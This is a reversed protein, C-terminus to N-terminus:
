TKGNNEKIAEEVVRVLMQEAEDLSKEIVCGSAAKHGGGGFKKAIENVDIDKKSRFSVKVGPKNDMERLFAVVEAGEIMRVFVIFDECCDATLKNRYLMENTVKFWVFKADDTRKLNALVEALLKFTNFSKTEYVYEYIQKPDIDYLLLDAAISHTRATTNAYRFSGTDTMIAVYICLASADDVARNSSKFLDYVMEGASSCNPDVWNIDGFQSNSVHHDINIIYKGDLMKKVDGIRELTPSDLIIAVDFDVANNGIDKFLEMSEVGPMFMINKPVCDANIIRVEKGLIKLLNAMALQSGIADGEPNVHGSILFRKHKKIVDLIQKRVM